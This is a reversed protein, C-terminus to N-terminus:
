PEDEVPEHTVKEKEIEDARRCVPCEIKHAKLCADCIGGRHDEDLTCDDDCYSIFEGCGGCIMQHRLGM